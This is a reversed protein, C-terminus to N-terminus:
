LVSDSAPLVARIVRRTQLGRWRQWGGVGVVPAPLLGALM